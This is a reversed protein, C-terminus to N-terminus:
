LIAQEAWRRHWRRCGQYGEGSLFIPYTIFVLVFNVFSISALLFFQSFLLLSLIFFGADTVLKTDAHSRTTFQSIAAEPRAPVQVEHTCVQGASQNYENVCTDDYFM